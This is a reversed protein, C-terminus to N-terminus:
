SVRRGQKPERERRPFRDGLAHQRRLRKLHERCAGEMFSDITMAHGHWVVCDRVEELVDTAIRGSTRAKSAGFAPSSTSVVTLQTSARGERREEDVAMRLQSVPMETMAQRSAPDTRSEAPEREHAVGIGAPIREPKRAVEPPAIRPRRRKGAVDQVAQEIGLEALPDFEPLTSRAM